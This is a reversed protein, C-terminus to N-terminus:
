LLSPDCVRTELFEGTPSWIGETLYRLTKNEFRSTVENYIRCTSIPGAYLHISVAPKKSSNTIAHTAIDDDIYLQTGASATQARGLPKLKSHAHSPTEYNKFVLEGSEIMMWCRQNSHDHIPTRHGPLWTLVALEFYENRYVLNRGYTDDRFHIFPLFADELFANEKLFRDVTHSRFDSKRLPTLFELLESVSIKNM